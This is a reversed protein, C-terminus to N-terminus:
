KLIEKAKKIYWKKLAKKNTKLAPAAIQMARKQRSTAAAAMAPEPAALNGIEGQLKIGSGSQRGYGAGGLKKYFGAPMRKGGFVQWAHAWGSIFKGARAQQRKVLKRLADVSVLHPAWQGSPYARGKRFVPSGYVEAPKALPVRKGNYETSGLVVFGFHGKSKALKHAGGGPQIAIWKKEKTLVPEAFPEIQEPSDVGAIDQAIRKKLARIGENDKKATSQMTAGKGHPPTVTRMANTFIAGRQKIATAALEENLAQLKQWKAPDTTVKASLKM